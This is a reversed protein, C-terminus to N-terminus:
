AHRRAIRQQLNPPLRKVVVGGIFGPVPTTIAVLIWLVVSVVLGAIMVPWLAITSPMQHLAKHVAPLEQFFEIRHLLIAGLLFAAISLTTGLLLFVDFMRAKTQRGRCGPCEALHSEYDTRMEPSISSIDYRWGSLIAGVIPDTCAKASNPM